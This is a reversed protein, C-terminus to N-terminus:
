YSNTFQKLKLDMPPFHLYSRTKFKARYNTIQRFNDSFGYYRLKIRILLLIIIKIIIIKIEYVSLYYKESIQKYLIYTYM